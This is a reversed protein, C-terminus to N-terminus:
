HLNAKKLFEQENHQLALMQSLMVDGQPLNKEPHACLAQRHKGHLIREPVRNERVLKKFDVAIVNGMNGHDHIEYRAGSEGIMQFFGHNELQQWQARTLFKRLLAFSKKKAAARRRRQEELKAERKKRAEEAQVQRAYIEAQTEHIIVPESVWQTYIYDRTATTTAATSDNIWYYWPEGTMTTGSTSTSTSTSSGTWYYWALSGSSTISTDSIM